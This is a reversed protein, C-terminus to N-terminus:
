HEHQRLRALPPPVDAGPPIRHLTLVRPELARPSRPCPTRLMHRACLIVAHLVSMATAEPPAPAFFLPPTSRSPSIRPHGPCAPLCCAQSLLVVRVNRACSAPLALCLLQPARTALPPPPALCRCANSACLPSTDPSMVQCWQTMHRSCPGARHAVSRASHMSVCLSFRRRDTFALHTEATHPALSCPAAMADASLAAASDDRVAAPM